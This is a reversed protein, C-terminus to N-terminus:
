SDDYRTRPEITPEIGEVERARAVLRDRLDDAIDRYEERGALNVRQHPDANMDYLYREVYTESVHEYLGDADPATVSYTWRETRIARGLEAGSILQVYVSDKWDSVRGRTLPLASTGEMTAPADVGTADLLTPPLDVLSVPEEVVSRQGVGPGDLILPVRVSSDHCTRKHEGHHTGFHCGHDSTFVVLTEDAIGQRELEDLLRGVCEDIRRITGYYDPLESHWEGPRDRLDPPVYPDEYRQAYGDPAVFSDMDNQQHPELYSLCLFFPDDRDRRIFSQAMETLADVRYGALEVPDGSSDHVIGEYPRSTFELADAARWFDYGARKEEPVPDTQTGALHWKGVYGTDYGARRLERALTHENEYLAIDGDVAPVNRYAGHTTAYQGTQLCARSPGCVPQSTIARDFRVGDDALRDLNPTLDMPNGYAGVSDWRQQDSFVFLINPPADTTSEPM